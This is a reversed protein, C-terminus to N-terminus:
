YFTQNYITKIDKMFQRETYSGILNINCNTISIKKNHKSAIKEKITSWLNSDLNYPMNFIIEMAPHLKNHYAIMSKFRHYMGRFITYDYNMDEDDEDYNDPDNNNKIIVFQFDQNANDCCIDLKDNMRSRQEKIENTQTLLIEINQSIGTNHKTLNNYQNRLRRNQDLLMDLKKSMKTFESEKEELLRDREIMSKKFYYKNVINFIKVGIKPSVWSAIHPILKHHVYTGALLSNRREKVKLTLDCTDLNLMIALENIIEISNELKMWQRFEKADTKIERCLKTANIYNNNKMIIVDLGCYKGWCYDENINKYSIQMVDNKLKINGSM